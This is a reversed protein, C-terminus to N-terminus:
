RGLQEHCDMGHGLRRRRNREPRWGCLERSLRGKVEGLEAALSQLDRETMYNDSISSGASAAPTEPARTTKDSALTAQVPAVRTTEDDALASKGQGQAELDANKLAANVMRLTSVRREDRAKMAGKLATNIEDRLVAIAKRLPHAWRRM